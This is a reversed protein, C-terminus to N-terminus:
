KLVELKNDSSDGSNSWFINIKRVAKCIQTSVINPNL